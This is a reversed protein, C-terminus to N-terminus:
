QPCDTLWFISSEGSSATYSPRSKARSSGRWGEGLPGPHPHCLGSELSPLTGREPGFKVPQCPACAAAKPRHEGSSRLRPIGLYSHSDRRWEGWQGGAPRAGRGAGRGSARRCCRPRRRPGRRGSVGGAAGAAMPARGERSRLRRDSPSGYGPCPWPAARVAPMGPGGRVVAGSERGVM